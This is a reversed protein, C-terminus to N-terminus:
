KMQNRGIGKTRRLIRYGEQASSVTAAACVIAGSYKLEAVSITLPLLFLLMGTAKNMFTHQFELGKFSVMAVIRNTGKIILIGAMWVWLWGPINMAPLLRVAACFLFVFDAISDLRAGFETASGTKRAVTGDAMDTVGCILYAMYFAASYVPCFLLWISCLIRSDTMINALYKKM